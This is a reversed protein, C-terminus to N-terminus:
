GIIEGKENVRYVINEAEGRDNKITPQIVIGEAGQLVKKDDYKHLSIRKLKPIDNSLIYAMRVPSVLNKINEIWHGFFNLSKVGTAFIFDEGDGNEKIEKKIENIVEPTIKKKLDKDIRYPTEGDGETVELVKNFLENKITVMYLKSKRKERDEVEVLVINDPNKKGSSENYEEKEDIEKTFRRKFKNYNLVKKFAADYYTKLYESQIKSSETEEWNLTDPITAYENEATERISDNTIVILGYIIASWIKEKTSNKIVQEPIWSLDIEAKRKMYNFRGSVPSGAKKNSENYPNGIFRYLELLAYDNNLKSKNYILISFLSNFSLGKIVSMKFDDIIPDAEEKQKEFENVKETTLGANNLRQIQEIISEDM